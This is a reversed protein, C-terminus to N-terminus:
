FARVPRVYYAYGKGGNSQGGGYFNQLWANYYDNESSSWYHGLTIQGSGGNAPGLKKYMENLEGLAPLYWDDYGYAELDSCLKAAYAYGLNTGL